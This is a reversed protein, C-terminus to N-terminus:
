PARSGGVANSSKSVRDLERGFRDGSSVTARASDFTNAILSHAFSHSYERSFADGTTEHVHVPARCTAIGLRYFSFSKRDRTFDICIESHDDLSFLADDLRSRAKLICLIPIGYM